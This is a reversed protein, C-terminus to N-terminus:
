QFYGNLDLVFQVTGSSQDVHVVIDGSPGLRVIGNNARTQGPQWNITSVLPLTGGAPFTRLDGAGTPQTITFNFAVAQVMAPIGCQGEIVFTRDANAALAPAGYPSVPGRTDVLRCSSITHFSAALPICNSFESTSGAANTATATIRDTPSVTVPLSVSLSADCSGDTTVATSGLYRKGPGFGTPDCAPSSFFEITYTESAVSNLTGEVATIGGSSSAKTLEPTNQSDNPGSDADCPDNPTPGDKGLDIAIGGNAYISNQSITNGSGVGTLVVGPGINNTIFNSAILTGSSGIESIGAGANPLAELVSLDTGISNFQIVAGACSTLQIGASGNLVIANQLIAPGPAGNVVIGNGGNGFKLGISNGSVLCGSSSGGQLNVGTTLNGAIVNGKVVANVASISIGVGNPLPASGDGNLGIVDSLVSTAAANLVDVGIGNGSILNRAAVNVMFPMQLLGITSNSGGMLRVGAGNARAANGASNTGIFNGTIMHDGATQLLIGATVWRGIVLGRVTSSSGTITLGVGSSVGNEVAGDLEITLVQDAFIPSTNQIAGPQTYGDITTPVTIAPLATAPAITHVGAGPINFAITSGSTGNAFLIADRFSCTGTGTLSCAHVVDSTDNVVITDAAVPGALALSFGAALCCLFPAKM